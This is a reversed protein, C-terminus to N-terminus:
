CVCVAKRPQHFLSNGLKKQGRLSRRMTLKNSNKRQPTTSLGEPQVAISRSLTRRPKKVAPGSNSEELTRKFNAPPTRESEQAKTQSNPSVKFSKQDMSSNASSSPSLTVSLGSSYSEHIRLALAKSCNEEQPGPDKSSAVMSPLGSKAIESTLESYKDLIMNSHILSPVSEPSNLRPWPDEDLLKVPPTCCRSPTMVCMDPSSYHPSESLNLYLEENELNSRNQQLPSICIVIASTNDARLMRQRWRGLARNVLMKACSQRHEGMFYNKEEHDQCMSIADQPPIMNWLGDSGLIIYKHKQPDITHVSTDPEPSVVFEGSYFDYSWLDGLARAVALFPIQDIVTSRRVPGNHTLRPRKWVVRNVGSKNIVSGGLGEIREREKPLEPKHDQTVEVARIFDDKPDDQVGLVVGSDGVHAVYMKSGRIIVVSATTGSTSPLGTMTKPWEPLKKWMARHCAVFGKRLAACVEAPEASCFGKQRTIFGWLNERAFQAAERGGHGDCVAFFAASRRPRAEGAAAAEQEPEPEPEVVIQTVDEMYKRGGQESFVSVALAFPAEM